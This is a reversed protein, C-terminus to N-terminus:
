KESLQKRSLQKIKEKDTKEKLYEKRASNVSGQSCGAIKPIERFSLGADFLTWILTDNRTKTRGIRRGTAKAKALGRIINSGLIGRELQALLTVLTLIVQASFTTLDIKESSEGGAPDQHVLHIEKVNWLLQEIKKFNYNPM